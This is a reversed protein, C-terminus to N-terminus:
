RFAPGGPRGATSSSPGDSCEQHLASAPLPEGGLKATVQDIVEAIKHGIEGPLHKTVMERAAGFLTGIAVGKLKTLEGSFHRTLGSLWGGRAPAAPQSYGGEWRAQSSVPAAYHGDTPAPGGFVRDQLRGLLFGTVVSGGMMAWPHRETQRKLNLANKVAEMTSTVSDKVKEVTEEVAEKVNEVTETVAHTTGQVTEVVQHELTELKETLDSRTEEMQHKIMETENDM